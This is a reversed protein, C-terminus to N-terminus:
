LNAKCEELNKEIIKNNEITTSLEERINFYSIISKYSQIGYIYKSSSNNQRYADQLASTEAKIEDLRQVQQISFNLSDITNRLEKVKDACEKQKEIIQETEKMESILRDSKVKPIQFIFKGLITFIAVSFFVLLLTFRFNTWAHEDSTKKM